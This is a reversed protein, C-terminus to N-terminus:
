DPNEPTDDRPLIRTMLSITLFMILASFLVDSTFHAGQVVRGVGAAAGALVALSLITRRRRTGVLWALSALALAAAPHGATFSCNKDCQDALALPPTFQRTGGFQVVDRPRARGWNDKFVVNVLLGPGVAFVAIVFGAERAGWPLTHPRALSIVLWLVAGSVTLWTVLPVARYLAVAWWSETLYFREAPRWFLGSLSLDLQPWLVFAACAAALFGLTILWGRRTM